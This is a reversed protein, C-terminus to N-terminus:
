PCRPPCVFSDNIPPDLPRVKSEGDVAPVVVLTMKQDSALHVELRADPGAATLRALLEAVSAGQFWWYPRPRRVPNM